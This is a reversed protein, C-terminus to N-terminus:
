TGSLLYERAEAWLCPAGAGLSFYKTYRVKQVHCQSWSVYNHEVALFIDLSLLAVIICFFMLLFSLGFPDGWTRITSNVEPTMTIEIPGTSLPQALLLICTGNKSDMLIHFRLKM